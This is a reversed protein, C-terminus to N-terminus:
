VSDPGWSVHESPPGEICGSYIDGETGVRLRWDGGEDAGFWEVTAACTYETDSQRLFFSVTAEENTYRDVTFGLPVLSQGQQAPPLGDELLATQGLGPAVQEDVVAEFDEATSLRIPISYAALVAGAPTQAYCSWPGTDSRDGPGHAASIPLYWGDTNEWTIDGPAETPVDTRGGSLGCASEYTAGDDIPPEADDPSGGPENNPPSEEPAPASSTAQAPPRPEGTADSDDGATGIGIWIGLGLIALLVFASLITKPSRWYAAADDEM